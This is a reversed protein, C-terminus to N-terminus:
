SRSAFSTIVDPSLLQKADLRWENGECCLRMANHRGSEGMVDVVIIIHIEAYFLYDQMRM